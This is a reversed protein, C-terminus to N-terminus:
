SSINGFWIIYWVMQIKKTLWKLTKFFPLLSSSCKIAENFSSINQVARDPPWSSPWFSNWKLSYVNLIPEFENGVVALLQCSATEEGVVGSVTQTMDSFTFDMGISNFSFRLYTSSQCQTLLSLVFCSPSLQGRLNQILYIPKYLLGSSCEECSVWQNVRASRPFWWCMWILFQLQETQGLEQQWGMGTQVMPVLRWSQAACRRSLCKIMKECSRPFFSSVNEARNVVQHHLRKLPHPGKPCWLLCHLCCAASGDSCM